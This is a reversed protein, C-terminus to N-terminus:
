ENGAVTTVEKTAVNIKRIRHGSYDAVFLFQGDASICIGTPATFRAATGTADIFGQSSGANTTVSNQSFAESLFHVLLTILIFRIVSTKTPTFKKM